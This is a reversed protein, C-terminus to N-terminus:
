AQSFFRDYGYFFFFRESSDSREKCYRSFYLHALSQAVDEVPESKGAISPHRASM